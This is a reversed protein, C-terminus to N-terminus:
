RFWVVEFLSLGVAGLGLGFVFFLALFGQVFLFPGGFHGPFNKLLAV